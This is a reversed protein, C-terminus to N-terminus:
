ELTKLVIPSCLERLSYIVLQMTEMYDFFLSQDELSYSCSGSRKQDDSYALHGRCLISYTYNYDHSYTHMHM